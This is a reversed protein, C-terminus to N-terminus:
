LKGGLFREFLWVVTVLILLVHGILAIPLGPPTSDASKPLMGTIAAALLDIGIWLLYFIILAVILTVFITVVDMDIGKRTPREHPPFFARGTEM